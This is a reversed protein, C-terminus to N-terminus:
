HTVPLLLCTNLTFLFFKQVRGVRIEFYLPLCTQLNVLWLVAWGCGELLWMLLMLILLISQALQHQNILLVIKNLLLKLILTASTILSFLLNRFSRLTVFSQLFGWLFIYRFTLVWSLTWLYSVHLHLLASITYLGWLILLFLAKAWLITFPTSWNVM